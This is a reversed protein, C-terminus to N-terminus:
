SVTFLDIISKKNYDTTLELNKFKRLPILFLPDDHNSFEIHKRLSTFKLFDTGQILKKM